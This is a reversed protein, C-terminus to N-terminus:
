WGNDFRAQKEGLPMLGGGDGAEDKWAVNLYCKYTKGGEMMNGVRVSKGFCSESRLIRTFATVTVEPLGRTRCWSRYRAIM